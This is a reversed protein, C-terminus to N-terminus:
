TILALQSGCFFAIPCPQHRQVLAEIAMIEPDHKMQKSLHDYLPSLREMMEVIFPNWM